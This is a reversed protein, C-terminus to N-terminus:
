PPQVNEDESEDVEEAFIHQVVYQKANCQGSIRIPQLLTYNLGVKPVEVLCFVFRPLLPRSVKLQYMNRMALTVSEKFTSPSAEIDKKIAKGGVNRRTCGSFPTKVEKRRAKPIYRLVLPM